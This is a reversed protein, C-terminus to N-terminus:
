LKPALKSNGQVLPTRCLDKQELYKPYKTIKNKIKKVKINKGIQGILSWFIDRLYISPPNKEIIPPFFSFHSM